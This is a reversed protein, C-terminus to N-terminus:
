LKSQGPASTIKISLREEDTNIQPIIKIELFRELFIKLNGNIYVFDKEILNKYQEFLGYAYEICDPMSNHPEFDVLDDFFLVLGRVEIDPEVSVEYDLPLVTIFEPLILSESSSNRDIRNLKYQVNSLRYVDALDISTSFEIDEILFRIILKDKTVNKFELLKWKIDHLFSIAPSLSAGDNGRISNKYLKSNKKPPKEPQNSNKYDSNPNINSVSNLM